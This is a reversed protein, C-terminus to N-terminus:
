EGFSAEIDDFGAGAWNPELLGLRVFRQFSSHPWDTVSQVLGHKVPVVRQKAAAM